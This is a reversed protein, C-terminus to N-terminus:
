NDEQLTYTLPNKGYQNRFEIGWDNGEKIKVLRFSKRTIDGIKFTGKFTFFDKSIEFKGGFMNWIKCSWTGYKPFIMISRGCGNIWIHVVKFLKKLLWNASVYRDIKLKNAQYVTKGDVLISMEQGCDRQPDLKNYGIMITNNIESM